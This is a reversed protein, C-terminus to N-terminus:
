ISDKEMEKRLLEIRRLADQSFPTIELMREFAQIAGTFKRQSGLIMGKGWLAGFHRPELALTRKIDELSGAYDLRNYRVTARRNWGESFEPGIEIVQTFIQEARELQGSQAAEGGEEMLKDIDERGSEYWKEWIALITESQVVSNENSQLTTFLKDLQKDTQDGFTAIPYIIAIWLLRKVLTAPEIKM